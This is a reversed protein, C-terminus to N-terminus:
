FPPECECIANAATGCTLTEVQGAAGITRVCDQNGMNNPEGPAWPLFPPATGKVTVFTGETQTDSIGIWVDAGALALLAQLEALDDPIALYTTGPDAACADRQSTWSAASPLVRYVHTTPLGDIPAYTTPCEQPPADIPADIAADVAADVLADPGADVLSHGDPVDVGGDHPAGHEVCENAVPGSLAGFRRGSPCSPDPFSCRGNPECTGHGSAYSCETDLSCEFLGPKMCTTSALSAVAALVLVRRVM